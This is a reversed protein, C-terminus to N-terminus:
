QIKLPENTVTLKILQSDTLLISNVSEANDVWIPAYTDFFSSFTNIIDIGANIKGANNATSYPVGNVITECTPELQGNILTNFMKFKVTRFMSNVKGEIFGIKYNIFEDVEFLKKEINAVEQSTAIKEENLQNERDISKQFDDKTNMITKLEILESEHQRKQSNLETTDPPNVTAIESKLSEIEAQIAKTQETDISQLSVPIESVKRLDEKRAEILNEVAIKDFEIQAIEEKLSEIEAKVNGGNQKISNLRSEKSQLFSEKISNTQDLPLHQQCTPCVTKRSDFEESDIKSYDSLLRERQETKQSLLILKSQHQQKLRLLESENDSLLNKAETIRNQHKRLAMSNSEEIEAAIQNKAKTLETIRNYKGQVEKQSKEFTKRVDTISENLNLILGNLDAIKAEIESVDIPEPRSRLVEDIRIPYKELEANLRNRDAQLAKKYFDIDQKRERLENLLTIFKADKGAISYDSVDGILKTLLERREKWAISNFYMPSTLLKFNNDPLISQVRDNFDKQTVKVLDIFYETEHGTFTEAIEGRRKVWKEKYLRAFSQKRGDIYFVATVHHDAKNLSTNVTNKIEHDKRDEHDKGFLCWLFADMITTKGSENKGSIETVESFDIELSKIGKFNVITLKSLLINM